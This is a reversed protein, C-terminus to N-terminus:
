LEKFRKYYNTPIRNGLIAQNGRFDKSQEWPLIKRKPRWVNESTICFFPTSPPFSGKATLLLWIFFCCYSYVLFLAKMQSPTTSSLSCIALGSAPSRLSGHARARRSIQHFHLNPCLPNWTPSVNRSTGLSASAAPGPAVKLTESISCVLCPFVASSSIWQRKDNSTQKLFCVTLGQAVKRLETWM